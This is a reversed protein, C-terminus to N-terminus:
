HWSGSYYAWPQGNSTDYAVAIATTPVDTPTGGGYDGAFGQVDGGGGGGAAIQCLLYVQIALLQKETISDCAFCKSEDVLTQPTCDAM